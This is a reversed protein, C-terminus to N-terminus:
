NRTRRADRKRLAEFYRSILEEPVNARPEWTPDDYGEWQIQFEVRGERGVRHTVTREVLFSPGSRNKRAVDRMSAAPVQERAPRPAPTVRDTSVREVIGNRDIVVTRKDNHLVRYPGLADDNLKGHTKSRDNPDLYVFSGPM